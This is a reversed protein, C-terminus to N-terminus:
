KKRGGKPGAAKKEAPRPAEVTADPVPVEARDQAEPDFANLTVGLARALQLLTPYTPERRGQARHRVAALSLGAKEALQPQSLGAANRRRKLLGAFVKDGEM